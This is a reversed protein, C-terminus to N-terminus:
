CVSMVRQGPAPGSPAAETYTVRMRVHDINARPATAVPITYQLAIGFDSDNVVAPTLTEGWLDSAGGVAEYAESAPLVSSTSKRNTSGYSGDAKILKASSWSPRTGGVGYQEVEFEVGNITAGSPVSAGFGKCDLTRTLSPSEPMEEDGAGAVARANNSTYVNGPSTWDYAGVGAAAASGCSLWGTDAMDSLGLM